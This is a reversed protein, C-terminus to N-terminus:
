DEQEKLRARSVAYYLPQSSSIGLGEAIKALSVGADYEKALQAHYDDAGKEKAKKVRKIAADVEAESKRSRAKVPQPPLSATIVRRRVGPYAVNLAQAMAVLSGGKEYYETLLRTYERSAKHEPSVLARSGYAKKALPLIPQIKKVYRELLDNSKKSM